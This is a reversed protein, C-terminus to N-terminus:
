KFKWGRKILTELFDQTGPYRFSFVYKNQGMYIINKDHTSQKLNHLGSVFNKWWMMQEQLTMWQGMTGTHSTGIVLYQSLNFECSQKQNQHVSSSFSDEWRANMRTQSFWSQFALQSSVLLLQDLLQPDGPFFLQHQSEWRAMTSGVLSKLVLLVCTAYM